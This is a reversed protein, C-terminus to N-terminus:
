EQMYEKGTRLAHEAKDLEKGLYFAHSQLSVLGMADIEKYIHEASKGVIVAHLVRGTSYHEASIEGKKHNVNIIFFGKPDARWRGSPEAAIRLVKQAPEKKEAKAGETFPGPEKAACEDVVKIIADPNLEGTLDVIEIRERFVDVDERSLGRLFPMAGRAGIIRKSGDIGNEKLSKLAQGTFHGKSEKGCLVLFRLKPNSIINRVVKEIGINEIVCPGKIAIRDMPMDLVPTGLTCVAVPSEKNGIAYRGEVAPWKDAM